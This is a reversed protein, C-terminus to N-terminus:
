VRGRQCAATYADEAAYIGVAAIARQKRTKRDTVIVAYTTDIDNSYLSVIVRPLIASKIKM